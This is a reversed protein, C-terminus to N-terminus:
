IAIGFFFDSLFFFFVSMGWLMNIAKICLFCIIVKLIKSYKRRFLFSKYAVKQLCM